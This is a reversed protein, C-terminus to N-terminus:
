AAEQRMTKLDCVLLFYLIIGKLNMISGKDGRMIRIQEVTLGFSVEATNVQYEKM